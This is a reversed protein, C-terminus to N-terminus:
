ETSSYRAWDDRRRHLGFARSFRWRAEISVMDDSLVLSPSILRRPDLSATLRSYELTVYGNHECGGSSDFPRFLHLFGKLLLQDTLM